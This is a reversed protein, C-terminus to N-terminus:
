DFNKYRIPLGTNISLASLGNYFETKFSERLAPDDDVLHYMKTAYTALLKHYVQDIDPVQEPTSASLPTPSKYYWLKFVGSTRQPELTLVGCWPANPPFYASDDITSKAYGLFDSPLIIQNSDLVYSVPTAELKKYRCVLEQADNLYEICDELNEFGDETLKNAYALIQALTM